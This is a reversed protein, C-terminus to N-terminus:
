DGFSYNEANIARLELPLLEEAGAGGEKIFKISRM